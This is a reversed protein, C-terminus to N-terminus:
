RGLLLSAVLAVVVVLVVAGGYRRLIRHVAPGFLYALAAIPVYKLARGLLSGVIFPPVPLSSAGAMMTYLMYPIPTDGSTVLALMMNDRYVRGVTEMHGVFGYSAFLPQVFEGFRTAGLQYGIVGGM